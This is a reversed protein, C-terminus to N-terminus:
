SGEEDEEDVVTFAADLEDGHPEDGEVEQCQFAELKSLNYKNYTLMLQM